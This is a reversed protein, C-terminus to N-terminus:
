LCLQLNGVSTEMDVTLKETKKTIKQSDPLGTLLGANRLVRIHFTAQQCISAPIYNLSSFHM